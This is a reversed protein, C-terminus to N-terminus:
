FLATFKQTIKQNEGPAHKLVHTRRHPCPATDLVRERRAANHGRRQSSAQRSRGRRAPQARAHTGGGRWARSSSPSPGHWNRAPQPVIMQCSRFCPVARFIKPRATGLIEACHAIHGPGCKLGHKPRCPM